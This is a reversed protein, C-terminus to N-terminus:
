KEITPVDPYFEDLLASLEDVDYTRSQHYFEHDKEDTEVVFKPKRLLSGAKIRFRSVDPLPIRFSRANDLLEDAPAGVHRRGVDEAEQLRGDRRLLFSKYSEEAFALSIGSRDFFLEFHEFTQPRIRYWGSVWLRRQGDPGETICPPERTPEM